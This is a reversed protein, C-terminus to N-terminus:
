RLLLIKRQKFNEGAIVRVVYVGSALEVGDLFWEYRGASLYSDALRIVLRGLADFVEIKVRNSEPNQFTIITRANFPNPYVYFELDPFEPTNQIGTQTAKGALLIATVSLRPLLIQFSNNTIMVTMKKLANQTHSKFTEAAPLNNLMLINCEGEPCDFRQLTVNATIDQSINRNVLMISLSDADTSIASYASVSKEDSSTSAVRIQKHYRSFLHLVEWMGNLWHWPTFIAVEEDAFVGLNSAYWVAIVNPDNSNIGVETVAFSVGHNSGLYKDLWVRCREFIYEKRISDDWDGTGARKVGNAGPYIYNKDFWVRHLQVIDAPKTEGAYFHFDLADLLRIRSIAQEEGIRKIFYEAWTYKKGGLEVKKNDWNYWQWENTFVPGLLKIGPFKVRAKQAVEFYIQIYAEASILKPMVDDHTSNWCEPENDMAWYNFRSSDLCLGEHSFWHDLIAITSDAPWNMLYLDPNGNGKDPGGGGAWNNTVGSWWQSNNYAWDNFNYKNNGAVKGLLQFSWIGKAGPINEELSQVAFDWDHSYVNNYWDPHSSLKRRWNYKTANNGGNERFMRVGADQLLRWQEISLPKNPNDSLSNNRGYIYPSIKKRGAAVDIQIDAAFTPVIIILSLLFRIM